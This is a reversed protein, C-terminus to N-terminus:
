LMLSIRAGKRAGRTLSPFGLRVDHSGVVGMRVIVKATKRSHRYLTNFLHQPKAAPADLLAILKALAGKVLFAM